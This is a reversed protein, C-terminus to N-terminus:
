VVSNTDNRHMNWYHVSPSDYIQQTCKVKKKKLNKSMATIEPNNM